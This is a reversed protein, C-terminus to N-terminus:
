NKQERSRKRCIILTFNGPNLHRLVPWFVEKDEESLEIPDPSVGSTSTSPQYQAESNVVENFKVERDNAATNISETSHLGQAANSITDIKKILEEVTLKSSIIELPIGKNIFFISPVPVM